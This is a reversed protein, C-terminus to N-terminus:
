EPWARCARRVGRGACAPLVRHGLPRRLRCGVVAVRRADRGAVGPEVVDQAAAEVGVPEVEELTAGAGALRRERELEQELAGPPALGREVDREGLGLLLEAQHRAPVAPREVADVEELEDRGLRREVGLALEGDEVGGLDLEALRRPQDELADRREVRRAHDEVAEGLQAEQRLAREAVAPLNKGQLVEERAAAAGGHHQVIQGRVGVVELEMRDGVADDEQLLERDLVAALPPAHAHDLHAADREAAAEVVEGDAGAPELDVRAQDRRFMAPREGALDRRAAVGREVRHEAAPPSSRPVL